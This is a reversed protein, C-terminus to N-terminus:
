RGNVKLVHGGSCFIECERCRCQYLSKGSQDPRLDLDVSSRIDMETLQRELSFKGLFRSVPSSMYFYEEALICSAYLNERYGGPPNSRKFNGSM